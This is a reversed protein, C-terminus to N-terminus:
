KIRSTLHWFGCVTCKYARIEKGGRNESIYRIMDQAEELSNYITKRCPPNVPNINKNTLKYSM